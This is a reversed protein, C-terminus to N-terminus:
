PTNVQGPGPTEAKSLKALLIGSRETPDTHDFPTHGELYHGEAPRELHLEEIIRMDPGLRHVFDWPLAHPEAITPRPHIEVALLFLGGPALVRSIEATAREVDDVHDLSNISTVVDFHGAPYPIREAPAHCYTAQHREIGLARYRDVLPDLCVRERADSAWELSGRPGSGVDLIRKGSFFGREIGVLTTFIREYHDNALTGEELQRSRWYALEYFAKADFGLADLLPRLLRYVALASTKIARRAPIKM